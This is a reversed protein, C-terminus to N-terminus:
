QFLLASISMDTWESMNDQNRVLWDKSKRRLVTHKTSFNIKYDQNQGSRARIWSRGASSALVSIM